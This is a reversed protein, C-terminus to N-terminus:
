ISLQTELYPKVKVAWYQYKKSPSPYATEPTASVAPTAPTGAFGVAPTATVDCEGTATPYCPLKSTAAAAQAANTTGTALGAASGAYCSFYPTCPAAATPPTPGVNKTGVPM